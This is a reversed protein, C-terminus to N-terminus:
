TNALKHTLLNHVRGSSLCGLECAGKEEGGERGGESGGESGGERGRVGSQKRTVTGQYLM